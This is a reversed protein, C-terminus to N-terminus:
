PQVGLSRGAIGGLTEAHDRLPGSQQLMDMLSPPGSWDTANRIQRSVMPHWATRKLDGQAGLYRSQNHISSLGMGRFFNYATALLPNKQPDFLNTTKFQAPVSGPQMNHPMTSDHRFMPDSALKGLRDVRSRLSDVRSHWHGALYKGGEAVRKAEEKAYADQRKIAEAQAQEDQMQQRMAMEQGSVLKGGEPVPRSVGETSIPKNPGYDAHAVPQIRAPAVPNRHLGGSLMPAGAQPDAPAMSAVPNPSVGPADPYIQNKLASM